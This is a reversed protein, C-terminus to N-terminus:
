SHVHERARHENFALAAEDGTFIAECFLCRVTMPPEPTAPQPRRAQEEAEKRRAAEAQTVAERGGADFIRKRCRGSCAYTGIRKNPGIRRDCGPALCVRGERKRFRAFRKFIASDTLPGSGRGRRPAAHVRLANMARMARPRGVGVQGAAQSLTVDLSVACRALNFALEFEDDYRDHSRWSPPENTPWPTFDVHRAWSLPHPVDPPRRAM